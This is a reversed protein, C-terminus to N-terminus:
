EKQMSYFEVNCGCLLLLVHLSFYNPIWEDLSVRGKRIFEAMREGRQLSGGCSLDCLDLHLLQLETVMGTSLTVLVVSKM